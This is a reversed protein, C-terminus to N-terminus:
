RSVFTVEEGDTFIVYIAAGYENYDWDVVTGEKGIETNENRIDGAIRIDSQQRAQRGGGQPLPEM